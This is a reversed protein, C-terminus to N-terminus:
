LRIQHLLQEETVVGETNRLHNYERYLRMYEVRWLTVYTPLPTPGGPAQVLLTNSRNKAQEWPPCFVCNEPSYGGDNDTRELWWGRRYKPLMDALFLTRSHWDLCVGIGRGGYTKYDKNNPNYCRQIMANWVARLKTEAVSLKQKPPKAAVAAAKRQEKGAKAAATMEDRLCGCSKTTGSRLRDTRVVVEKGCTCQCRHYQGLRRLVTLRGFIKGTIHIM